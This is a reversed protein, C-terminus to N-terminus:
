IIAITEEIAKERKNSLETKFFLTSNAATNKMNQCPCILNAFNTGGLLLRRLRKFCM